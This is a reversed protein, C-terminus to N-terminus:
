VCYLWSSLPHSSLDNFSTEYGPRNLGVSFLPSRGFYVGDEPCYNFDLQDGIPDYEEDDRPDYYPYSDGPDYDDDYPDEEYGYDVEEPERPDYGGRRIDDLDFENFNNSMPM